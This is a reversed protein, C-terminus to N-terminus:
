TQQPLLEDEGVNRVTATPAIRRVLGSLVGGPGVEVFTTVGSALMCEVSKQWLVAHTLQYSLEERLSEADALAKGTGNVVIPARPERFATKGLAATMGVAAPEMLSTHFAGSVSLPVTRRAGHSRAMETAKAVAVLGGGVVVQGPANINCVQAGSAACLERAAAEDLGLVATMTGPNVEGAEQMLRGREQVLLLGDEFSLAEGAVAATYEGLSHGALFDPMEMLEGQERAAALCALSVTMIAPQTNITQRLLDEPGHFCIDSLSRRLIADAKQFVGRAAASTDSLVRGM